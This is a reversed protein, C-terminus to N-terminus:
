DNGKLGHHNYFDFGLLDDKLEEYLLELSGDKWAKVVEPHVSRKCVKRQSLLHGTCMVIEEVDDEFYTSKMHCPVVTDLHMALAYEAPDNGGFYGPMSDKMYPCEKCPRKCRRYTM